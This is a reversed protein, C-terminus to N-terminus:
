ISKLKNNYKKIKEEIEELDKNNPSAKNKVAEKGIKLESKNNIQEKTTETEIPQKTDTKNIQKLLISSLFDTISVGLRESEQLTLMYDSYSVRFGLFKNKKEM